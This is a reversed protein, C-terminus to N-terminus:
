STPLTEVTSGDETGFPCVANVKSVVGGRKMVLNQNVVEDGVDCLQWKEVVDGCRRLPSKVVTNWCDRFPSKVVTEGDYSFPPKVLTDGGDCLTLKVVIDVWNRVLWNVVTYEAARHSLVVTTLEAGGLM